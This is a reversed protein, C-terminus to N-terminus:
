FEIKESHSVGDIIALRTAEAGLNGVTLIHSSVAGLSISFVIDGDWPTFAPSIARAIGAVAMKSVINLEKQSLCANTMVAVLTTNEQDGLHLLRQSGEQIHKSINLFNGQDDRAGAFIDGDKVIDGYANVVCFAMVRVPGSQLHSWGFGGNMPNAEKLGKGVAAGYGAGVRGRQYDLSAKQCANYADEPTPFAAQENNLDFICASPIIPVPGGPTDLGTNRERLWQLMGNTAGLGFASGGTFLLGDIEQLSNTQDLSIVQRTGPASGCVTYSCTSRDKLLFATLGTRGSCSVHGILLNDFHM